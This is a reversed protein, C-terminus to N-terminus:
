KYQPTQPQLNVRAGDYKSPCKAMLESSELV